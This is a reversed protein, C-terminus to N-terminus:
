AAIPVSLIGAVKQFLDDLTGDNDIVYDFDDRTLTNDSAHTNVPGYGPRDVWILFGDRDRVWQLENPFRIGTLSVNLGCKLHLDVERFAWRVWVDPDCMERGVETGLKQLYDRVDHCNKSAEYSVLAHLDVYRMYTVGVLGKAYFIDRAYPWTGDKWNDWNVNVWPNVRLLATELARSMYEKTWPGGPAREVLMDAATDKGAQAYGGLAVFTTM